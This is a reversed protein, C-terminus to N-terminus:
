GNSEGRLKAMKLGKAREGEQARAKAAAKSVEACSRPQFGATVERLFGAGPRASLGSCKTSLRRGKPCVRQLV